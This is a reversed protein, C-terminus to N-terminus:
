RILRKRAWRMVEALVVLLVVGVVIIGADRATHFAGLAVLLTTAAAPPHGSRLLHNLLVTLGVAVAAAGLRSLSVDNLPVIPSDWANFIAVATYGSGIGVLHGVLCNYPRSTALDPYVAVLYATPGLSPFLWPEGAFYATAGVILILGASWTASWVSGPTLGLRKAM